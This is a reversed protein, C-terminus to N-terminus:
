VLISEPEPEVAIEYDGYKRVKLPSKVLEKFKEIGQPDEYVYISGIFKDDGYIDYVGIESDFEIEIIRELWEAIKHELESYSTAEFNEKAVVYRGLDRRGTYIFKVNFVVMAMVM